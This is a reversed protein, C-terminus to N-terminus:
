REPAPADAPAREETSAMQSESMVGRLIRPAPLASAKQLRRQLRRQQRVDQEDVRGSPVIIPPPPMM